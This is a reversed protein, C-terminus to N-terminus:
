WEGFAPEPSEDLQRRWAFSGYPPDVYVEQEEDAALSAYIDDKVAHWAVADAIVRDGHNDGAGSLDDTQSASSHEVKGKAFRYARCEKLAPESPNLFKGTALAEGYDELLAQKSQPSSWWGAADTVTRRVSNTNERYHINTYGRDLIADRFSQGPGNGEWILYADHFLRCLAIVEKAFAHPKLYPTTYEAVKEGTRRNVVSAVSNSAGTGNSIDCGVVYSGAPFRGRQFDIWLHLPGNDQHTIGMPDLSRPDKRITARYKPKSSLKRILDDVVKLDFLPRGSGHYDIDLQEAVHYPSRRLCERDYWPSRVRFTSPMELQFEYDKPFRYDEDIIKLNGEDDITYLGPNKRPDSSWHLSIHVIPSEPKEAQMKVDYFANDTGKPTSVYICTSTVDQVSSLVKQGTGPEASDFAAFEDLLMSTRRDGRAIDGTMTEGDIVTKTGPNYRHFRQRCESDKPDYLPTLWAPCYEHIFDFKWFLTKPDGTKEVLEAKRSVFLHSEDEHFAFRWYYFYVPMWSGGIERSKEIFIDNVNLNDRIQLLVEDQCEWTIFPINKADKLRPNHTWTFANLFFLIDRKCMYRLNAQEKRNGRASDIVMKRFHLNAEEEKPVLREYYESTYDTRM